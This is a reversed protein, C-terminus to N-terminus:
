SAQLMVRSQSGIQVTRLLCVGFAPMKFETGQSKLCLTVSGHVPLYPSSPLQYFALLPSSIEAGLGTQIM